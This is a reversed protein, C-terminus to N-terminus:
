DVADGPEGAAAARSRPNRPDHPDRLASLNIQGSDVVVPLLARPLSRPLRHDSAPERGTHRVFGARNLDVPMPLLQYATYQQAEIRDDRTAGAGLRLPQLRLVAATKETTKPLQSVQIAFGVTENKASTLSVPTEVAVPLIPDDFNLSRVKPRTDQEVAGGRGGSNVPPCGTLLLLAPCVMALILLRASLHM